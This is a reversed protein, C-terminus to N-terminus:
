PITSLILAAKLSKINFVTQNRRSLYIQLLCHCGVGTSKGLFIGHVSSGPLSCDMSDSSESMVSRSWKWKESERMPSPFPLGSWHEQRSFGLSPFGPLSSDIPDCLTPCSQLSVAAAAASLYIILEDCIPNSCSYTLGGSLSLIHGAWPSLPTM